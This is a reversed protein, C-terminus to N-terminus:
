YRPLSVCQYRHEALSTRDEAMHAPAALRQGVAVLVEFVSVSENSDEGALLFRIGLPGIKITGESSNVRTTRQQM